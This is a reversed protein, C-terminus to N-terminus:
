FQISLWASLADHRAYRLAEDQTDYRRSYLRFDPQRPYDLTSWVEPGLRWRWGMVPGTGRTRDDVRYLVLHVWEGLWALSGRPYRHLAPPDSQWRLLELAVWGFGPPDLDARSLPM